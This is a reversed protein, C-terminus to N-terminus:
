NADAKYDERIWRRVGLRIMHVYEIGYQGLRAALGVKSFGVKRSLPKERIDVVTNIGNTALCYLFRRIETGQYGITFLQTKTKSM